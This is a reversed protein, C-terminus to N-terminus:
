RVVYRSMEFVRVPKMEPLTFDTLRKGFTGFVVVIRQGEKHVGRGRETEIMLSLGTVKHKM